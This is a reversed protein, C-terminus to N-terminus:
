SLRDFALLALPLGAAIAALLRHYLSLPSPAVLVFRGSFGRLRMAEDVREARELARVLIMGALSALTALTHRSTTPRFGRLRLADRLRATEARILDVYRASFLLLHILRTPVRLSALAHGLAVPSTGALATLLALAAINVKLVIRLALALGAQSLQLPGLYVLDPGGATLPLIVVLVVLFGEVHALRHAIEAPKVGAALTVILTVAALGALLSLHGIGAAAIVVGALAALRIRLDINVLWAATAGTANGTMRDIM